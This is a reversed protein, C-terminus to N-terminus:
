CCPHGPGGATCGTPRRTDATGCIVNTTAGGKLLEQRSAELAAIATKNLILKQNLAVKKKKM